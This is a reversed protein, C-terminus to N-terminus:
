ATLRSSVFKIVRLLDFSQLVRPPPSSVSSLASSPHALLLFLGYSTRCGRCVGPVDGARPSPPEAPHQTEATCRALPLRLQAAGAQSGFGDAPSIGSRFVLPSPPRAVAPGWPSTEPSGLGGRCGLEAVAAGVAGAQGGWGLPGPDCWGQKGLWWRHESSCCSLHRGGAQGGSGCAMLLSWLWWNRSRSSGM